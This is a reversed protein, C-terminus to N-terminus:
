NAYPFTLKFIFAILIPTLKKISNSEIRTNRAQLPHRGQSLRIRRSRRRHRPVAAGTREPVASRQDRSGIQRRGEAAAAAAAAAAASRVSISLLAPLQGHAPLVSHRVGPVAREM